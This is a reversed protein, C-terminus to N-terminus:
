PTELVMWIRTDVATHHGDADCHRCSYSSPMMVSLSGGEELARNGVFTETVLREPSMRLAECCDWRGEVGYVICCGLLYSCGRRRVCGISHRM